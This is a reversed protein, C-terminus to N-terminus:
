AMQADLYWDGHPLGPMMVDEMSANAAIGDFPISPYAEKQRASKGYRYRVTTSEIGFNANGSQLCFEAVM